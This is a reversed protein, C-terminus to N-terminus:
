AGEGPLKTQPFWFISYRLVINDRETKAVAITAAFYSYVIYM